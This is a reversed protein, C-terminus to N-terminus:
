EEVVRLAMDARRSGTCDNLLITSDRQEEVSTEGREGSLTAVGLYVVGFGIALLEQRKSLLCDEAMFSFTFSDAIVRGLRTIYPVPWRNLRVSESESANCTVMSFDRSREAPSQGARDKMSLLLRRFANEELVTVSFCLSM